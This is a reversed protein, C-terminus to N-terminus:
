RKCQQAISAQAQLELSVNYSLLFEDSNRSVNNSTHAAAHDVNQPWNGQEWTKMLRVFKLKRSLVRQICDGVYCFQSHGAKTWSRAWAHHALQDLAERFHFGRSWTRSPLSVSSPLDPLLAIPWHSLTFLGISPAWAWMFGTGQTMELSIRLLLCFLSINSTDCAFMSRLSKIFWWKGCSKNVFFDGYTNSM